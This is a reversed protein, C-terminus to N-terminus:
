NIQSLLFYMKAFYNGKSLKTYKNINNNATTSNIQCKNINNQKDNALQNIDSIETVNNVIVPSDDNIALKGNNVGDCELASNNAYVFQKITVPGQYFTKNGFHVESSNSVCINGFKPNNNDNDDSLAIAGKDDNEDEDESKSTAYSSNDDSEDEIEEIRVKDLQKENNNEPEAFQKDFVMGLITACIFSIIFM